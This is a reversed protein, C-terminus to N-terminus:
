GYNMGNVQLNGIINDSGHFVEVSTVASTDDWLIGSAVYTNVGAPDQESTTWSNASQLLGQVKGGDVINSDQKWMIIKINIPRQATNNGLTASWYAQNQFSVESTSYLGRMSYSAGDDNLTVRIDSETTGASSGYFYIEMIDKATFSGVSLESAGSSSSDTGLQSWTGSAAAAAEAFAGQICNNM